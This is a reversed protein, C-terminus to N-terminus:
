VTLYALWGAMLPIHIKVFFNRNRPFVYEKPKLLIGMDILFSLSFFSFFVLPLNEAEIWRAQIKEKVSFVGSLASIM